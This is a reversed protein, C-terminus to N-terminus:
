KLVNGKELEGGLNPNKLKPNKSSKQIKNKVLAPLNSTCM